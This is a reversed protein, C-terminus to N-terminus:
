NPPLSFVLSFLWSVHPPQCGIILSPLLCSMFWVFSLDEASSVHLSIDEASCLRLTVADKSSDLPPSFIDEWLHAPQVADETISVSTCFSAQYRVPSFLQVLSSKTPCRELVELFKQSTWRGFGDSYSWYTVSGQKTLMPARHNGPVQGEPMTVMPCRKWNTEKPKPKM